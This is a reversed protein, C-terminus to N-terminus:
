LCLAIIVLRLCCYVVQLHHSPVSTFCLWDSRKEPTMDGMYIKHEAEENKEQTKKLGFSFYNRPKARNSADNHHYIGTVYSVPSTMMIQKVKKKYKPMSLWGIVTLKKKNMLRLTQLIWRGNALFLNIIFWYFIWVSFWFWLSPLRLGVDITIITHSLLRLKYHNLRLQFKKWLGLNWTVSLISWSCNVTQYQTCINWHM